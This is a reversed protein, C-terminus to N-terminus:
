ASDAVPLTNRTTLTAGSSDGAYEWQGGDGTCPLSLTAQHHTNLLPQVHDHSGECPWLESHSHEICNPNTNNCTCSRQILDQEFLHEQHTCDIFIHELLKVFCVGSALVGWLFAETAVVLCLQVQTGALLMVDKDPRKKVLAAEGTLSAEDVKM